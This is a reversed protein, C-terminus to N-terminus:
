TPLEIRNGRRRLVGDRVMRDALTELWSCDEATVSGFLMAVSEALTLSTYRCVLELLRGRWLRRPVNRYRPEQKRQPASVKMKGVSACRRRLPCKVCLPSRKACYLSGIDMLAENWWRAGGRPFLADAYKRVVPLPLSDSERELPVLLRSLVRQINVDVVAVDQGYAFAAVARATYDGIGPLSQLLVPDQPVTGGFHAAIRRACEHLYVARRNYGLGRWTRLVESRSAGALHAISPFRELFKELIPEVRWVQTQQLMVEAILVVYPDRPESRWRFM